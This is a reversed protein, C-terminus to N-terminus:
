ISAFTRTENCKDLIPDAARSLARALKRNRKIECSVCPCRLGHKSLRIIDIARIPGVGEMIGAMARAFHLVRKAESSPRDSHPYRYHKSKLFEDANERLKVVYPRGIRKAHLWFESRDSADTIAAPTAASKIQQWVQPESQIGPRSLRYREYKWGDSTKRRAEWARVREQYLKIDGTRKPPAAPEWNSRWIGRESLGHALGNFVAHWEHEWFYLMELNTGKPGPKRPESNVGFVGLGSQVAFSCM